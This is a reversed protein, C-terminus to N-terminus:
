IKKRDNGCYGASLGLLLGTLTALSIPPLCVVLAARCGDIIHALVIRGLYDTGFFTENCRWSPDRFSNSMDLGHVTYPLIGEEGSFFHPFIGLFFFGLLHLLALGLLVNRNSYVLSGKM